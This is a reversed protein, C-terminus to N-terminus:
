FDVNPRSGIWTQLCYGPRLRFYSRSPLDLVLLLVSVRERFDPECDCSSAGTNVPKPAEYGSVGAESFMGSVGSRIRLVLVAHTFVCRAHEPSYVTNTM